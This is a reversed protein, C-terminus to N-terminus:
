PVLSMLPEALARHGADTLHITDAFMGANNWYTWSRRGMGWLDVVVGGVATALGQIAAAIATKRSLTDFWNGFHEIVFVFDPTYDFTTGSVYPSIIRNIGDIFTRHDYEVNAPDNAGLAIVVMDARGLGASLFPELTLNPGIVWSPRNFQVEATVAGTATANQSLTAATASTVTLTTDMPIGTASLYRGTMYPRFSGGSATTIAASASTRTLAPIRDQIVPSYHSGARGNQGCRNVVAGTTRKGEVGHVVVSGSVREVEVTHPVDPLNLFEAFGPEVPFGSPVTVDTWAGGDVRVRLQGTIDMNRHFVRIRTGQINTWTMTAAGTTRAGCGGFGCETSSVWTGTTAAYEHSLFGSGGNGWRSQVHHTLLGAASLSRRDSSTLGQALISDGWCDIQAVRNGALAEARARMMRLGWGPPIQVYPSTRPLARTLDQLLEADTVM